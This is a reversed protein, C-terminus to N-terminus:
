EMKIRAAANLLTKKDRILLFSPSMIDFYSAKPGGDLFRV